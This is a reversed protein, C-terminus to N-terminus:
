DTKDLEKLRSLIDRWTDRVAVFVLEHESPLEGLWV